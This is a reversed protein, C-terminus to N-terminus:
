WGRVYENLIAFPLSVIYLIWVVLTMSQYLIWALRWAIPEKKFLKKVEETVETTLFGNPKDYVCDWYNWDHHKSM